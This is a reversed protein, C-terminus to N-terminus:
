RVLEIFQNQGLQYPNTGLNGPLMQSPIVFATIAEASGNQNQPGDGVGPDFDIACSSANCKGFLRQLYVPEFEAIQVTGSSGSPFSGTLRPVYGFRPSLQIDYLDIGAETRSNM